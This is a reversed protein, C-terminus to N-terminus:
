RDDKDVSFLDIENLKKSWYEPDGDSKIFSDICSFVSDNFGGVLLVDKVEPMQSTAYPQIDVNIMKCKPSMRKIKRFIKYSPSAETGINVNSSSNDGFWGATGDGKYDRWSQNDSILVVADYKKNQAHVMSLASSINTGGSAFHIKSVNTSISDRLNFSEKTANDAFTFVDSDKNSYLIGLGLLCAAMACSVVSTASGSYGTIPSGMSGSRDICIAITGMEPANSVSFDLADQLAETIQRPVDQVSQFAIYAQYPMLRAKSILEKDRLRAAILDVMKPDNFVNHRKFTNLNMRTQQWSAKKAIEKWVEDSVQVGTLFRFDMKPVFSSGKKFAEFEQVLSPMPGKSCKDGDLLYGFLADHESDVPFPHTMKIIDSFSPDNGISQGFVYNANKNLWQNVMEKPHSGFSKRGIVGSRIVQCYNRLMKGSDIVQRFAADHVKTSGNKSLWAVLFAPMDKMFGTKHAAIAVKAIYEDDNINQLIARAKDLQEKPDSYFSGRFCGTFALQAIATKDKMSYAGGGSENKTNIPHMEARAFVNKNM